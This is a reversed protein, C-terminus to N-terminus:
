MEMHNFQSVTKGKKEVESHEVESDTSTIDSNAFDSHVDNLATFDFNFTDNDANWYVLDVIDIHIDLISVM